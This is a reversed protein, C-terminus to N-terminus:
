ETPSPYTKKSHTLGLYVLMELTKIAVASGDLVPVGLRKEIRQRSGFGLSPFIAANGCVILQADEQEIQGRAIEVFRAELEEKHNQMELNPVKIPKVSTLRDSCGLQGIKAEIYSKTKENSTVVGFKDALQCALHYTAAAAGVFPISVAARASEVNPDCMGNLFIGDFGMKEAKKANQVTGPAILAFDVVSTISPTGGTPFVEIETGQSAFNMFYSKRQKCMEPSYDAALLGALRM